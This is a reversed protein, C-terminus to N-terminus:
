TVLTCVSVLFMVIKQKSGRLAAMPYNAQKLYPSLKLVRFIRLMRIIRIILLYQADSYYLALIGPM